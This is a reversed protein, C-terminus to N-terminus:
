SNEDKVLGNFQCDNSCYEQFHKNTKYNNECFKCTKDFTVTGTKLEAQRNLSEQILWHVETHCNQCLLQCKDAEEKLKEYGWSKGSIAFDKKNPDLHHFAYVAPIPKDYGCIECKGGKYAILKIKTRKRWDVVSICKRKKYSAAKNSNRQRQYETWKEEGM